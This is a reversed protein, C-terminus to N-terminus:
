RSYRLTLSLATGQFVLLGMSLFGLRGHRSSLLGGAGGAGGVASAGIVGAGGGSGMHDHGTQARLPTLLASGFRHDPHSLASSSPALWLALEEREQTLVVGRHRRSPRLKKKKSKLSKGRSPPPPSSRRGGRRGRLVGSSSERQRKEEDSSEREKERCKTEKGKKTYLSYFFACVLCM